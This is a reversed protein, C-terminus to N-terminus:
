RETRAGLTVQCDIEKGHRYLKMPVVEGIKHKHIAHTVDDPNECTQGAIAVVIDGREIGASEAPSGPMVKAVIAGLTSPAKFYAAAQPTVPELAVGFYPWQMHGTKILQTVVHKVLNVPISFGIGQAFPIIATNIAIVSGSLDALPGGSNGPNIAADTQLLDQYQKDEGVISRGTASLVGVTVTNKFGYPNGIAVVWEGIQLHDSDGLNAVPLDKPPNNIKVVALDSLPDSGIVKGQFKRNDILTVTIQNAKHIVHENTVVLGSKDIIVGSGAGETKYPHSFPQFPDQGFFDRFFNDVGGPFSPQTISVTNINVVAPGLKKVANVVNAKDSYLITPSGNSLSVVSSGSERSAYFHLTIVSGIIGAILALILNSVQQKFTM